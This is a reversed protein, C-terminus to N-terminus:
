KFLVIEVCTGEGPKSRLAFTGKHNNIIRQTVMLGLGTGHVKNTYFPEGIRSMEDEVIGCGQDIIRIMFSKPDPAMLDIQIKGGDPMAEMANKLVNIFVQKLQNAECHILPVDTPELSITLEIEVNDLSAQSELLKVVHSVIDRIDTLQFQVAQPKALVLFESVIFNIRDLESLMIDLQSAKLSGTMKQLQVFGKLTTLPNRIEHAVGAALQGVVSLKESRRLAEETQKRVTINRSISAIAVIHGHADRIPSITISVDILRGDKMYRATEFDTVAEGQLMKQVQEETAALQDAPINDLPKGCVEEHCWGFLREFAQNVQWVQGQLDSVHIADSTQNFFSELYEKTTRLEDAAESLETTYRHLNSTMTNVQAALLGLEDKRRGPIFSDFQGKAVLNVTDLIKQIPRIMFGALWYSTVMSFLLLGLSIMGLIFLHHNLVNTLSSLDFTIGIVYPEAAHVPIFSKLVNKGDIRSETINRSGSVIAQQLHIGDNEEDTFRYSGFIIDRVDLNHVPIGQKIKIIPQKGFFQPNFGTIELISANEKMMKQIVAESGEIKQFDLISTANIYPDIMYNTTGDYYYGWKNIDSPDSTAFNIPGSWYHPLKRGQSVTVEHLTFLQLFATYWYDWTKSSLNIEKPNSSRLVVIDNDPLKTWLSIHDVGLKASLAVLQENTVGAIDPNLEAQAAIAAARLKEATTDEMAQRAQQTVEVTTSLQDAITLMQQEASKKLGEKTSISYITLNLVLITAVLLSICLTLKVKISM